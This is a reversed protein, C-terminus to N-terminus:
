DDGESGAGRHTYMNIYIYMIYQIYIIYMDMYIHVEYFTPKWDDGESGTTYEKDNAELEEDSLPAASLHQLMAQEAEAAKAKAKQLEAELASVQEDAALAKGAAVNEVKPKANATSDTQTKIKLLPRATGKKKAGPLPKGPTVVIPPDMNAFSDYLEGKGSLRTPGQELPANFNLFADDNAGYPQKLKTNGLQQTSAAKQVIAKEVENKKAEQAAIAAAAEALINKKSAEFSADVSAKEQAIIADAKEKQEEERAQAVLKNAAKKVEVEAAEEHELQAAAKEIKKEQSKELMEAAKKLVAASQLQIPANAPKSSEAPKASALMKDSKSLEALMQAETPAQFLVSKGNYAHLTSVALVAAVVCLVGVSLLSRRARTGQEVVSL